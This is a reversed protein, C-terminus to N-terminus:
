SMQCKQNSLNCKRTKTRWSYGVNCGCSREWQISLLNVKLDTPVSAIDEHVGESLM